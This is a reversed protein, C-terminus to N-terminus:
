RSKEDWHSVLEALADSLASLKNDPLRDLRAALRHIPDNGLLENAKATPRVLRTRGDQGKSVSVLGVERLRSITQSASSHTILYFSSFAGITSDEPPQRAFFRLANWQTLTLSTKQADAYVLRVLMDLVESAAVAVRTPKEM